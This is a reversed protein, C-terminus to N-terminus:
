NIHGPNKFQRCLEAAEKMISPIRSNDIGIRALLSKDHCIEQCLVIKKILLKQKENKNLTTLCTIPYLGSADIQNRLSNGEPYDWGILKLGCCTGYQIADGTFRTNTVVWGQHFKTGHGPLKKWAAEVDKFRAQIYLPIKVDCVTGPFNHYKCEVMFHHNAKEAIVDIEHSVCQGEVIEGVAVKYGEHRLIEAIFKEFPFGSPGLEMIARKLRYKAAVQKTRKKLITFATRYIEKTPIGPYLEAKVEQVVKDVREENAGARRLSNRLKTESFPASEGSAKTIFIKKAHKV